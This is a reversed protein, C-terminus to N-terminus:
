TTSLVASCQCCMHRAAKIFVAYVAICTCKASTGNNEQIFKEFLARPFPFETYMPAMHTRRLVSLLCLKVCVSASASQQTATLACSRYVAHRCLLGQSPEKSAQSLVQAASPQRVSRFFLDAQQVDQMTWQRAVYHEVLYRIGYYLVRTDHSDKNYGCRFEGYQLCCSCVLACCDNRLIRLHCSPVCM